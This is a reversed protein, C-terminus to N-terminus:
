ETKEESSDETETATAAEAHKSGNGDAGRAASGYPPSPNYGGRSHSSDIITEIAPEM